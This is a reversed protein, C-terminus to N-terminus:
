MHTELQSPPPFPGQPATRQMQQEQGESAAGQQSM